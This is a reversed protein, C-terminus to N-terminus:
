PPSLPPASSCGSMRPSPMDHKVARQSGPTGHHTGAERGRSLVQLTEKDRLRICWCLTGAKPLESPSPEAHGVVANSGLCLEALLAVQTCAPIHEWHGEGSRGVGPVHWSIDATPNLQKKKEGEHVFQTGGAKGVPRSLLTAGAMAMATPTSTGRVERRRRMQRRRWQRLCRHSGSLFEAWGHQTPRSCPEGGGTAPSVVLVQSQGAVRLSAAQQGAWAAGPTSPSSPILGWGAGARQSPSVQLHKALGM